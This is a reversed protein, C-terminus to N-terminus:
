NTLKVLSGDTISNTGQTILREGASIGDVVEFRLGDNRGTTINRRSASDGELVYVYSDKHGPNHIYQRSIVIAKENRYATIDIQALVGSIKRNQPNKFELDVIFAQRNMDMSQAVQIVRGPLENGSVLATARSGARINQIESETAWVKAKYKDLVTVTVLDAGPGVSETERVFVKTVYGSFPAKAKIANAAAEYNAKSVKLGTEIQELDARSIGGTEFLTKMRELNALSNEYVAKAQRYQGMPNDEPFTILVQEKEVFDGVKVLVEEIRDSISSTVTTEKIGSLNATYSYRIDFPQHRVEEIIVPIGEAEQIQQITRSESQEKRGCGYIIVVLLLIAQIIRIKM